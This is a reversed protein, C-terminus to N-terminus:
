LQEMDLAVLANLDAIAGEIRAIEDLTKLVDVEEPAANIHVHETRPFSKAEQQARHKALGDGETQPYLSPELSLLLRELQQLEQEAEDCTSSTSEEDDSDFSCGDFSQHPSDPNSSPVQDVERNQLACTQFVDHMDPSRDIDKRADVSEKYMENVTEPVTQEGEDTASSSSTSKRKNSPKRGPRKAPQRSVDDPVFQIDIKKQSRLHHEFPMLYKQYFVRAATSVGGYIVSSELLENYVKNWLKCQCVNEFGGHQQVLNYFRFLNVQKGRWVPEKPVTVGKELSFSQLYELFEKEKWDQQSVNGTEFVRQKSTMYPITPSNLPTDTNRRAPIKAPEKVSEVPARETWVASAGAPKEEEDVYKFHCTELRQDSTKNLSSQAEQLAFEYSKKLEILQRGQIKRFQPAKESESMSRLPHVRAPVLWARSRPQGFFEVHYHTIEKEKELPADYYEGCTPDRTLLGPWSPYGSMKAMVVEGLPLLSYIFKMHKPKKAKQEEASCTNYRADRNLWCYWASDELGKAEETSIERWKQCSENECQVWISVDEEDDRKKAPAILSSVQSPHCSPQKLLGRKRKPM